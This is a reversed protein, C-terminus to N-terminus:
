FRFLRGNRVEIRGRHHDVPLGRQSFRRIDQARTKSVRVDEWRQFVTTTYQSVM